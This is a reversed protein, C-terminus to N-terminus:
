HSDAELDSYDFKSRLDLNNDLLWERRREIKAWEEEEDPTLEREQSLDLLRSIRSEERNLQSQSQPNPM